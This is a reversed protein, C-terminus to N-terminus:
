CFLLFMFTHTNIVPCKINILWVLNNKEILWTGPIAFVPVPWLRMRPFLGICLLRCVYVICLHAFITCLHTCITYMACVHLPICLIASTCIQRHMTVCHRKIYPNAVDQCQFVFHSALTTKKTCASVNCLCPSKCKCQYGHFANCTCIQKCVHTWKHLRCTVIHTIALVRLMCAVLHTSCTGRWNSLGCAGGFGRQRTSRRGFLACIM